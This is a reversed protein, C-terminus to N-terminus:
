MSRRRTEFAVSSAPAYSSGISQLQLMYYDRQRRLESIQRDFSHSTQSTDMRSSSYCSELATDISKIKLVLESETYLAMVYIYQLIAINDLIFIGGIQV